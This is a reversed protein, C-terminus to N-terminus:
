PVHKSIDGDLIKLKHRCHIGALTVRIWRWNHDAEVCIISEPEFELGAEEMVERKTAEQM